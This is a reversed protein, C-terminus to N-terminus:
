VTSDIDIIIFNVIYPNLIMFVGFWMLFTSIVKNVKLRAYNVVSSLFIAISYFLLITLPGFLISFLEIELPVGTSIYKVYIIFINFIFDFIPVNLLRLFVYQGLYHCFLRLYFSFVIIVLTFLNDLNLLQSYNFGSGLEAYIFKFKIKLQQFFTM